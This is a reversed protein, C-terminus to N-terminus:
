KIFWKDTEVFEICKISPFNEKIKKGYKEILEGHYGTMLGPKDTCIILNKRTTPFAGILIIGKVGAEDKWEKLIKSLKKPM